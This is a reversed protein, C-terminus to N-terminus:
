GHAADRRRVSISGMILISSNTCHSASKEVRSCAWPLTLTNSLPTIRIVLEPYRTNVFFVGNKKDRKELRDPDTDRAM